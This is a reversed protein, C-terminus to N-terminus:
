SLLDPLHAGNVEGANVKAGGHGLYGDNIFSLLYNGRNDPVGAGLVAAQSSLDHPFGKFVSAKSDIVDLIDHGGAIAADVDRKGVTMEGLQSAM